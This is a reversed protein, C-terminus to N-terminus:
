ISMCVPSDDLLIIQSLDHSVVRLDKRYSTSSPDRLCSDRYFRKSEPILCSYGLVDLIKDAYTKKAATFLALDYFMSIETLFLDLGPRKQVFYKRKKSSFPMGETTQTTILTGDLDLVLLKRQNVLNFYSRVRSMKRTCCAKRCNSYGAGIQEM